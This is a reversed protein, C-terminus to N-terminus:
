QEEFFPVEVIHYNNMAQRCWDYLNDMNVNEEKDAWAKEKAWKVEFIEEKKKELLEKSNSSYLLITDVTEARNRLECLIFM